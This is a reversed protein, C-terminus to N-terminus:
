ALLSIRAAAGGGVQASVPPWGCANRGSGEDRHRGRAHSEGVQGGKQRSAGTESTATNRFDHLPSLPRNNKRGCERRALTLREVLHKPASRSAVEKDGSSPFDATTDISPAAKKGSPHHKGAGQFPTQKVGNIATPVARGLANKTMKADAM